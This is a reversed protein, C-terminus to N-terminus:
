HAVATATSVGPCGVNAAKVLANVDGPRGQRLAVLAAGCLIQPDDAHLALARDFGLKAEPLRNIALNIRGLNDWLMADQPSLQTAKEAAQLADDFQHLKIYGGSLEYWAAANDPERRTWESAYLVLVNWNGAQKLEQVRSEFPPRTDAPNPAAVAVDGATDASNPTQAPAAITPAPPQPSQGPSVLWWVIAVLAILAVAGAALYKPQKIWSLDRDDAADDMSRSPEPGGSRESAGRLLAANRASGQSADVQRQQLQLATARARLYAAIVLSEDSGGQDAARRWLPQDVHGEQYEKAARALFEDNTRLRLDRDTKNTSASQDSIPRPADGPPAASEVPELSLPEHSSTKGDM